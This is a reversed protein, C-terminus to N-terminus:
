EVTYEYEISVHNNKSPNRREEQRRHEMFFFYGVNLAVLSVILLVSLWAALKHRGYKKAKVTHGDIYYEEAGGTARESVPYQYYAVVRGDSIRYKYAGASVEDFVIKFDNCLEHVRIAENTSYTSGSPISLSDFSVDTHDLVKGTSDLQVVTFSIGDVKYDMDNYFRLMLYKKGKQRVFIYNKVTIFRDPQAYRYFGKSLMQLDNQM